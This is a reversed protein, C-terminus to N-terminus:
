SLREDLLQKLEKLGVPKILFDTAGAEFARERYTNGYATLFVIPIQTKGEKARMLRCISIGDMDPLKIDLLILDYTYRDFKSLADEGCYATDVECNLSELLRSSIKRLIFDDEVLLIKYQRAGDLDNDQYSTIKDEKAWENTQSLFDYHYIQNTNLVSM